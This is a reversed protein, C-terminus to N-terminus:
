EVGLIYALLLSVPRKRDSEEFYFVCLLLINGQYLYMESQPILILLHYLLMNCIFAANSYYKM